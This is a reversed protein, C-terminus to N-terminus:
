QVQGMPHIDALGLLETYCQCFCVLSLSKVVVLEWEGSGKLIVKGLVFPTFVTSM